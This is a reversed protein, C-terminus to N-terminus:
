LNRKRFFSIIDYVSNVNITNTYNLKTTDYRGFIMYELLLDTDFDGNTDILRFDPRANLHIKNIFLTQEGELFSVYDELEAQYIDLNNEIETNKYFHLVYKNKGGQNLYLKAPEGRFKIGIFDENNIIYNPKSCNLNLSILSVGIINVLNKILNM